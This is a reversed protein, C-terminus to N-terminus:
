GQMGGDELIHSSERLRHVLLADFPARNDLKM